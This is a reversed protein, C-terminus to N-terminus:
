EEAQWAYSGEPINWSAVEDMSPDYANACEERILKRNQQWGVFNGCLSARCRDEPRVVPTGQHEFPSAHVPRSVKLKDVTKTAKDQTCDGGELPWYSVWACRAASLDRALSLGEERGQETLLTALEVGKVYPLHWEGQRLLIPTSKIYCLYMMRALHRFAPHAAKDCRLAFFNSWMTSSVVQKVWGFPELLRNVDQKHVSQTPALMQCTRTILHVPLDLENDEFIKVRDPNSLMSLASVVANDRAEMWRRKVLAYDAEDVNASAQMGTQNAGFAEPVFPDEMVKRIMRALPIARSSASNKSVHPPASRECLSVADHWTEHNMRHTVVEALVIRPFEVEFAVLRDGYVNISDKLTRAKYM